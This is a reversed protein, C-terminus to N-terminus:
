GMRSRQNRPHSVARKVLASIKAEEAATLDKLAFSTPWMAGDDLNAADNFGLTAYRSKFKHASQFFCVIKGDQAYAPMGYWTKPSLTPAAAKVITHLREAMARDPEPMEAIKALLDSEGDAKNKAAKLEQARERMAAREEATFGKSKQTDKKTPKREAM